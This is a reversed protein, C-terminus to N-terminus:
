ICKNRNWKKYVVRSTKLQSIDYAEKKISFRTMSFHRTISDRISGQPVCAAHWASEFVIVPRSKESIWKYHTKYKQHPRTGIAVLTGGQFVLIIPEYDAKPTYDDRPWHYWLICYTSFLEYLVDVLKYGDRERPIYVVPKSKEVM